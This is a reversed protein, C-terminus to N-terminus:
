AVKKWRAQPVVRRKAGKFELSLERGKFYEHLFVALAGVESHPQNTVGVNWDCLEYVEWPVKEGGVVVLLDNEKRIRGLKKQIPLGYM